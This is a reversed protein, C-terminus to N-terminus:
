LWHSNSGLAVAGRGSELTLLNSFARPLAGEPFAVRLRASPAEPRIGDNVEEM